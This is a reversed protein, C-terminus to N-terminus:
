LQRRRPSVQITAISRHCTMVSMSTLALEDGKGRARRKEENTRQGDKGAFFGEGKKGLVARVNEGAKKRSEEKSVPLHVRLSNRMWAASTSPKHLPISSSKTALSNSHRRSKEERTKAELLVSSYGVENESVSIPSHVLIGQVYAPPAFLANRGKREADTRNRRVGASL